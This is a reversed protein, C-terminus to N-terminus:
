DSETLQISM